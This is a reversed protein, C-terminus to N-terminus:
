TKKSKEKLNDLKHILYGIIVVLSSFATAICLTFLLPEWGIL